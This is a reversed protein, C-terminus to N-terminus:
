ASHLLPPITGQKAPRNPGLPFSFKYFTGRSPVLIDNGHKLENSRLVIFVFRLLGEGRERKAEGPEWSDRRGIEGLNTTETDCEALPEPDSFDARFLFPSGDRKM